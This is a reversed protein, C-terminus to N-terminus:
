CHGWPSIGSSNWLVRAAKANWYPNPWDWGPNAGVAYFLDNHLPLMLQFLGSAGSSNRAGPDFGSERGAVNTMCAVVDPGADGFAANIASQVNSPPGSAASSYCGTAGLVLAAGV